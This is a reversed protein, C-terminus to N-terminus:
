YIQVLMDASTYRCVSLRVTTFHLIAKIGATTNTTHDLSPGTGSSSTAGSKLKWDFDDSDKVNHWSCLYTNEFDCDGSFYM